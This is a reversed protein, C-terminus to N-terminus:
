EARASGITKSPPKRRQPACRKLIRKWGNRASIAEALIDVIEGDDVRQDGTLSNAAYEELLSKRQARSHSLELIRSYAECAYGFTERKRYDIELLWERTRTHPLGITERKCNHFIHAAEHVIFDAFRDKQSFYRMSVFCTTEESLGALRMAKESLCPAGISTLYLNALDWATNLFGVKELIGAISDPTLFVVSKELVGVVVEQEAQPFLGHVMPVVKTRTLATFDMEPITLPNSAERACHQTRAILEKRLVAEMMQARHLIGGEPWARYYLDYDGTQLYREIEQKLAPSYESNSMAARM